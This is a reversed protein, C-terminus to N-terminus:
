AAQPALTSLWRALIENMLADFEAPTSFSADPQPLGPALPAGSPQVKALLATGSMPLAPDDMSQLALHYDNRFNREVPGWDEQLPLIYYRCDLINEEIAYQLPRKDRINGLSVPVFLVGKPLAASENFAGVLDHFRMRERELEWPTACFIRHLQPM